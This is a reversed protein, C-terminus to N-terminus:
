CISVSHLRGHIGIVPAVSIDGLEDGDGIRLSLQRTPFLHGYSPRAVVAQTPGLDPSKQTDSALGHM